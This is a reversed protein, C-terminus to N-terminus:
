EIPCQWAGYINLPQDAKKYATFSHIALTRAGEPLDLPIEIVARGDSPSVPDTETGTLLINWAADLIDYEHLTLEEVERYPIDDPRIFAIEARLGTETLTAQVAIEETANLYETGTIAGSANKIDRFYGLSAAGAATICLLAALVAAAAIIRRSRYNRGARTQRCNELIRRKTEEPLEINRIPAFLKDMDM